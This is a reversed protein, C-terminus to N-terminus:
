GTSRLKRAVVVKWLENFAMACLSMPLLILWEEWGLAVTRFADSLGPVYVVSLQLLASVSVALILKMNTFVGIQRITQTESRASLAYFLQSFVMTCFAVTRAHVVASERGLSELAGQF